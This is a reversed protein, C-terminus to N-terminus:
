FKLVSKTYDANILNQKSSLEAVLFVGFDCNFTEASKIAELVGFGPLSHVTVLNAWKSIKNFQLQVTNGIDALKRFFPLM